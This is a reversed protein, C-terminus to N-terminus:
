RKKKQRKFPIIFDPKLDGTFRQPLYYSQWLICMRHGHHKGDAVLEAGCSSCVFTQFQSTESEEGSLAPQSTDWSHEATTAAAAKTEKKLWFSKL